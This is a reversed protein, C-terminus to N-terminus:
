KCNKCLPNNFSIMNNIEKGCKHCYNEIYDYNRFERWVDYCKECMPRSTNFDMRKGCRICTGDFCPTEGTEKQNLQLGMTKKIDNIVKDLENRVESTTYRLVTYGLNQLDRDISRDRVAQYETREHYTHGDTYICIKKDKTEIYFDPITLITDPNVPDPYHSISNDKNIRMQLEVNIKNKILEKFLIQELISDGCIIGCRYCEQLKLSCDECLSDRDFKEKLEKAENVECNFKEVIKKLNLIDLLSDLLDNLDRESMCKAIQTDNSLPLIMKYELRSSQKNLEFEIDM